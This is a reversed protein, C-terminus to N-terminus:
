ANWETFSHSEAEDSSGPSPVRDPQANAHGPEGPYRNGREVESWADRVLMLHSIQTELAAASQQLHAEVLGTRVYHYFRELNLAVQGGQDKNLSDELHGLIVIAHNIAQTRARIDGKGLASLARALDDIVQDYLCIVLQVPSAGRVATERYSTRADM